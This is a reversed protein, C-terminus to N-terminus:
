HVNFMMNTFPHKKVTSLALVHHLESLVTQVFPNNTPSPLGAAQHIWTLTYIAEEVTGKSGTADGLHQLYLALHIAEVPFVPVSHM